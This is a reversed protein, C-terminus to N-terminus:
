TPPIPDTKKTPADADLQRTSSELPHWRGGDNSWNDLHARVIQVGPIRRIEYFMADLIMGSLPEMRGEIRNMAGFIAVRGRTSHISLRGLDIWHKVLIRRIARNVDLDTSLPM